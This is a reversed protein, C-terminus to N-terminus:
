REGDILKCSVGSNFSVGGGEYNYVHAYKDCILQDGPNTHLKIATQNTMTGSPFFLASDMGFMKAVKNELKNVSPDEKFVDDGVKADMMSKLMKKSPKTVTDSILNIDMTRLLKIVFNMLIQLALQLDM